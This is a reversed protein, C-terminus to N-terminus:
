QGHRIGPEGARYQILGPTPVGALVGLLPPPPLPPPDPVETALTWGTFAALFGILGALLTANETGMDVRAHGPVRGTSGCLPREARGVPVM